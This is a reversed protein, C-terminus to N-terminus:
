VDLDVEGDDRIKCLEYKSIWKWMMESRAKACKRRDAAKRHPDQGCAEEHSQMMGFRNQNARDRLLEYLIAGCNLDAEDIRIRM